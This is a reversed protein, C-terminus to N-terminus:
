QSPWLLLINWSLDNKNRKWKLHQTSTKLFLCFTTFLTLAVPIKNEMVDVVKNEFNKHQSLDQLKRKECLKPRFNSPLVEFFFFM